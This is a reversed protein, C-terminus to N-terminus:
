TRQRNTTLTCPKPEVLCCWSHHKKLQNQLITCPFQWRLDALNSRYIAPSHAGAALTAAICLGLQQYWRVSVSHVPITGEKKGESNWSSLMLVPTGKSWIKNWAFVSFNWRMQVTHASPYGLSQLLPQGSLIHERCSGQFRTSALWTPWRFQHQVPDASCACNKLSSCSSYSIAVCVNWSFRSIIAVQRELPVGGHFCSWCDCPPLEQHRWIPTEWTFAQRDNNKPQTILWWNTDTLTIWLKHIVLPWLEDGCTARETPSNKIDLIKSSSHSSRISQRVRMRPSGENIWPSASTRSAKQHRFYVWTSWNVLPFQPEYPASIRKSLKNTCQYEWPLVVWAEPQRAFYSCIKAVTYPGRKQKHSKVQLNFYAFSKGHHLLFVTTRIYVWPHKSQKILVNTCNINEFIIDFREVM